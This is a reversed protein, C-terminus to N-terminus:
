KCKGGSGGSGGNGVRWLPKGTIPDRLDITTGDITISMVVNEYVGNYNVTFGNATLTDGIVPYAMNQSEWYSVPGIGYLQVNGDATALTLSGAQVFEIVDGTFTFPVGSLIDHIPGTGDGPGKGQGALSMGAGFLVMACVLVMSIFHKKM